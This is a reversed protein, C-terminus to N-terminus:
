RDMAGFIFHQCIVHGNAYKRWLLLLFIGNVHLENLQSFFFLMLVLLLLLLLRNVVYSHCIEMEVREFSCEIYEVIHLKSSKIKRKPQKWTTFRVNEKVNLSLSLSIKSYMVCWGNKMHLFDLNKMFSYM